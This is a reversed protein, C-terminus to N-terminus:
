YSCKVGARRAATQTHSQPKGDQINVLPQTVQDGVIVRSPLQTTPDYADLPIDFM